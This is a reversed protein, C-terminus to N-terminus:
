KPTSLSNAYNVLLALEGADTYSLKRERAYQEIQRGLSGFAAPLDKKPNRLPLVAGTPTALYFKDQIDSYTSSMGGNMGYPGYGYPSSRTVLVERRLLVRPGSSLQEFFAPSRFDSYDNDHNWLYTRFVRVRAPNVPEARVLARFSGITPEQEGQVAFSQVAVASLTSMTQDPLVIRVIDQALYFDLPGHLTDGSALLVTSSEFRRIIGPQQARVGGPCLGLFAGALALLSKKM